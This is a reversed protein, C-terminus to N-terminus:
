SARMGVRPGALMACKSSNFVYSESYDLVEIGYGLETIAGALPLWNLLEHQGAAEIDALALDRWHGVRGARLDQYRRRDAEVDPYLYHHKATLSAHSWSSSGILVVRWPSDRFIRATEAGIDFCLRPSPAPPDPEGEDRGELTTRGRTRVISSGYCNVHFPIIPYDFGRRDYDLFFLTNMFAHALGPYHLPQYAYPIAFDRELLRRALYRAAAPHGRVPFTQDRPEDWVNPPDELSYYAGRAHGQTSFDANLYLCFPPILDEQFNEYQDDGWILIADPRFDDIAARVQRFAGIVRERHAAATAAVREGDAGWERQMPEPWSRPDAHEPPIRGSRLNRRLLDAMHADPYSFPPYHTVGACLIEGM